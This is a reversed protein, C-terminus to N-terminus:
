ESVTEGYLPLMGLGEAVPVGDAEIANFWHLTATSPGSESATFTVDISVEKCSEALVDRQSPDVKFAQEPLTGFGGFTVVESRGPPRQVLLNVQRTKSEGMALKGFDIAYESQTILTDPATLGSIEFSM